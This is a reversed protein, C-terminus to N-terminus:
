RWGNRGCTECSASSGPRWTVALQHPQKYGGKPPQCAYPIGLIPSGDWSHILVMETESLPHAHATRATKLRGFAEVMQKSMGTWIIVNPMLEICYDGDTEHGMARMATVLTPTPDGPQAKIRNLLDTTLTM